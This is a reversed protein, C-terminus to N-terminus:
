LAKVAKFARLVQRQYKSCLFKELAYVHVVFLLLLACSYPFLSAVMLYCWSTNDFLFGLFEAFFRETIRSTLISRSSFLTPTCSYCFVRWAYNVLHVQARWAGAVLPSRPTM